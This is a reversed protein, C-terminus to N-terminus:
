DKSGARRSGVRDRRLINRIMIKVTDSSYM